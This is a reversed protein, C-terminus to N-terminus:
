FTVMLAIGFLAHCTELVALPDGSVPLEGRWITYTWATNMVRFSDMCFSAAGVGDERPLTDPQRPM